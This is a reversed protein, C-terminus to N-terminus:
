SRLREIGADVDFRCTTVDLPHASRGQVSLSWRGSMDEIRFKYQWYERPPRYTNVPQGERLVQSFGGWPILFIDRLATGCGGCILFFDAIETLKKPDVGQFYLGRAANFTVSKVFCRHTGIRATEPWGNVRALVECVVGKANAEKLFEDAWMVVNAARM